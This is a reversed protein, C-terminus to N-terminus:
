KDVVTTSPYGSTTGSARDYVRRSGPWPQPPAAVNCELLADTRENKKYLAWVPRGVQKSEALEPYAMRM